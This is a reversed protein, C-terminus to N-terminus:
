GEPGGFLGGGGPRGGRSPEPSPSTGPDGTGGIGGPGGGATGGNTLGGHGQQQCRRDLPHCSRSASASPSPSKSPSASPSTSPSASPSSSPVASPSPSAGGGYVKEGIPEAREFQEVPQGKLAKGMYDAFIDSPYSAGHITAQGGVGRLSLFEQKKANPDVNEHIERTAKWLLFLGGAILILDRWSFALDFPAHGDPGPAPSFPLSFVPATLGVIWAITSLLVLRMILALSIGLKRAKSRQHEPLKNSLISIFILNDIGLVVEMVILTILAAWAAPDATLAVISDM